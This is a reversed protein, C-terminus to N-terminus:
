YISMVTEHIIQSVAICHPSSYRVRESKPHDITNPEHDWGNSIRVIVLRPRKIYLFYIKIYMFRGLKSCGNQKKSWEFVSCEFVSSKLMRFGFKSINPIRISESNSHETNSGGSYVVISIFEM